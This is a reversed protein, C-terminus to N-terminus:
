LAASGNGRRTCGASGELRDAGLKSDLRVAGLFDCLSDISIIAPHCNQLGIRRTKLPQLQYAFKV